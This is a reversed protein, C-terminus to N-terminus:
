SSLPDSLPAASARELAAELAAALQSASFPKQLVVEQELLERQDDFGTMFVVALGPARSRAAQALEPGSMGPMLVDTLLVEFPKGDAAALQDLGERGSDATSVDHGLTILVAAIGERVDAKDEVVLIHRRAGDPRRASGGVVGPAVDAASEGAVPFRLEMRTGKGPSSEVLIEGGSQAMIAQVTALGLGTGKGQEKRTFFPEFMRERTEADMGSGTDEVQLSVFEGCRGDSRTDSWTGRSVRITLRGGDPMADRANMGLNMLTRAINGLDAHIPPTQPDCHCVVEIRSDFLRRFVDAHRAALLGLDVDDLQLRQRGGYVLLQRVLDAGREAAEVIGGVQREVAENGPADLLALESFGLIATLLNNFDHAVGSALEGVARLKQAERLREELILRESIDHVTVQVVQSGHLEYRCLRLEVSGKSATGQEAPQLVVEGDQAKLLEAQRALVELPLGTLDCFDRGLIETESLEFYRCAAPNALQVCWSESDLVVQVASTRTFVDSYRRESAELEAGSREIEVSLRSTLKRLGRLTSLGAVLAIAAALCLALFWSRLYIPPKVQFPKSFSSPGWADGGRRAQVELQFEGAPLNTYRVFRESIPRESSWEEEYGLLRARLQAKDQDFHVVTLEFDVDSHAALEGSVEFEGDVRPLVSSVVLPIKPLDLEERYRSLGRDTGFWIRGLSDQLAAARNSELGSLGDSLDFHRRGSGDADWRNLGSGTGVWLRGRDDELLSYCPEDLHLAGAPRQLKGDVLEFLGARTAALTRGDRLELVSYTSNAGPVEESSFCTPREALVGAEQEWRYVGATMTTLYMSGSAGRTVRRATFRESSLPPPDEGRAVAASSPLPVRTLSGTQPDLQFLGTGAAVWVTGDADELISNCQRGEPLDFIQMSGDRQVRVAGLQCAALWYGDDSGSGIDLVRIRESGLDDIGPFLQREQIVGDFSAFGRVHGLLLQGPSTEWIATVEDDVLGQRSDFSEFCQRPFRNVGRLSSVWVGGERDLGLDTVGGSGPMRGGSVHRPKTAGAELHLLFLSGGFYVGGVGDGLVSYEYRMGQHVDAFENSDLQFAGDEIHGIWGPSLLWLREGEFAAGVLEGPPLPAGVFAGLSSGGLPVEVLREQHVALLSDGRRELSAIDSIAEGDEGEFWRVGGTESYLLLKRGQLLIAAHAEGDVLLVELSRVWSDGGPQQIPLHHWAGQELVALGSGLREGIAWLRGQDDYDLEGVGDTFPFGTERTHRVWHSGDYVGIGARTAFAVHGTPSVELSNVEPSPLGDYELLQESRLLQPSATVSTALLWLSCYLGLLWGM